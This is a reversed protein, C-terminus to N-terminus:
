GLELVEETGLMLHQYAPLTILALGIFMVPICCLLIVERSNPPTPLGYENRGDTGPTFWLNLILFVNAFPIIGLLIWWGSRGLDHLRQIGLGIKMAWVALTVLGYSILSPAARAAEPLTWLLLAMLLYLVIAASTLGADYGFYRARGLRGSVSLIDIRGYGHSWSPKRESGSLVYQSATSM